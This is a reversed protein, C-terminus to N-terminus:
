MSRRLVTWNVRSSSNSTSIALRQRDASGHSVITAGLCGVINTIVEEYLWLVGVTTWSEMCLVFPDSFMYRSDSLSYEKWLQGFFDQRSAMRTHNIVFYGEFFLHIM